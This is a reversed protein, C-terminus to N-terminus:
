ASAINRLCNVLLPIHHEAVKLVGVVEFVAGHKPRIRGLFETLLFQVKVRVGAAHVNVLGPYSRNWRIDGFGRGLTPM